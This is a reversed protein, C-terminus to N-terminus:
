DSEGENATLADQENLYRRVSAYLNTYDRDTAGRFGLAIVAEVARREAENRLGEDPRQAQAAAEYHLQGCSPCNHTAGMAEVHSQEAPHAGLGGHAHWAPEGIPLSPDIDPDMGTVDGVDCIWDSDLEETM